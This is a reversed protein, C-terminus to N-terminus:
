SPNSRSTSIKDAPFSLTFKTGVGEESEVRVLVKSARFIDLSAALGIGLGGPKSTFYPKFIQELNAAPIGCGNDAIHISFRGHKYETDVVLKGHNAMADIANVIINSFAIKLALGDVIKIYGRSAYKRVVTINKLLLRDAAMLLVDDLLEHMSYKTPEDPELPQELALENVSAGIKKSARAIIELFVRQEEDTTRMQLANVALDINTLPNRIEHILAASFLPPHKIILPFSENTSKPPSPYYVAKPRHINKTPM